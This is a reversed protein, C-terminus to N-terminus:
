FLSAADVVGAVFFVLLLAGGWAPIVDDDGLTFFLGVMSSLFARYRSFRLKSAYGRSMTMFLSFVIFCPPAASMCCSGSCLEVASFNEWATLSPLSLVFSTRTSFTILSSATQNRVEGSEKRSSKIKERPSLLASAIISASAKSSFAVSSVSTRYTPFSDASAIASTQLPLEFSGEVSVEISNIPCYEPAIPADAATANASVKRSLLVSFVSLRLFFLMPSSPMSASASAKFNLLVSVASSRLSFSILSAPAAKSASANRNLLDSAFILRLKLRM